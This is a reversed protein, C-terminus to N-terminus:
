IHGRGDWTNYGDVSPIYPILGENNPKYGKAIYISQAVMWFAEENM